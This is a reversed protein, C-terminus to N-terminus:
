GETYGGDVPHVSGTVFAARDSLLHVAAEAIEEPRALRGLPVRRLLEEGALERTSEIMDTEVPGPRLCVVRIGKRAYEIALARTLAEVGAKAAAYIAQGRFPRVAAVSSVNLVVGRRRRLMGPLVARACLAAGLLNTELVERLAAPDSTALLGPRVVGACQVLADADGFAEVGAAVASEDRVDFALVMARRGLAEVEAAVARAAGAAARYHVGVDAGERACALAVARGIGRSAGTVLM